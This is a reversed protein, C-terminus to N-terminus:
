EEGGFVVLWAPREPDDQRVSEPLSVEAAVRPRDVLRQRQVAVADRDHPDQRPVKREVLVDHRRDVAHLPDVEDEREWHGRARAGVAVAFVEVDERRELGAHGLRRRLGLHLRDRCPHM